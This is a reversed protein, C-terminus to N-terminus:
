APRYDAHDIARAWATEFSSACFSVVSTEDTVEVDLLDGDGSFHNFLVCEDFLWFDNGPFALDSAQRRSLWRVDEGAALNAAPTDM